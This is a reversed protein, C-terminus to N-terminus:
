VNKKREDAKGRRVPRAFIEQKWPVSEVAEFVVERDEPRLCGVRYERWGVLAVVVATLGLCIRDAVTCVTDWEVGVPLALTIYVVVMNYYLLVAGLTALLLMFGLVLQTKWTERLIVIWQEGEKFKPQVVTTLFILMQCLPTLNFLCEAFNFRVLEKTTPSGNTALRLVAEIAHQVIDLILSNNIPRCPGEANYAECFNQNINKLWSFVASFHSAAM